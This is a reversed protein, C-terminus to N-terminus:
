KCTIFANLYQILENFEINNDHKKRNRLYEDITNLIEVFIEETINNENYDKYVDLIYAFTDEGSHKKIQIFAQKVNDSKFNVNLIDSYLKASTKIKNILVDESNYLMMTEFYNTFSEYLRDPKFKKFNFKTVFFDKLFRRIDADKTNWSYQPSVSM